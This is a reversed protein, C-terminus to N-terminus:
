NMGPDQTNEHTGKCVSKRPFGPFARVTNIKQHQKSQAKQKVFSSM